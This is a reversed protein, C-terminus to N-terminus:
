NFFLDQIVFFSRRKATSKSFFNNRRADEGILGRTTRKVLSVLEQMAFIQYLNTFYLCSKMWRMSRQYNKNKLKFILLMQLLYISGINIVIHLKLIFKKWLSQNTIELRQLKKYKKKNKYNYKFRVDICLSLFNYMCKFNAYKFNNPYSRSQWIWM